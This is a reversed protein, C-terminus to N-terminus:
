EEPIMLKGSKFDEIMQAIAKERSEYLKKLSAKAKESIPEVAIFSVGKRKGSKMEEVIKEIEEKSVM